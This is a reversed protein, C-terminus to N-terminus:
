NRRGAKRRWRILSVSIIGLVALTIIGFPVFVEGIGPIVACAFAVIFALQLIGGIWWDKDQRRRLMDFDSVANGIGL